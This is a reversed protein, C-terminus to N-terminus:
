RRSIGRWCAFIGIIVLAWTSPEPVTAPVIQGRIVEGANKASNVQLWYRGEKLDEIMSPQMLRSERMNFTWGPVSGEETVRTYSALPQMMWFWEGGETASASKWISVADDKTAYDINAFGYLVDYDNLALLATGAMRTPKPDLALEYSLTARFTGEQAIVATGLAQFLVALAFLTKM